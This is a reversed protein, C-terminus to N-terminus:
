FRQHTSTIQRGSHLVDGVVQAHRQHGYGLRQSAVAIDTFFRALFDDLARALQVVLRVPNRAAQDRPASVHHAEHDGIQHVREEGLHRRAHRALQPREAILDDYRVRILVRLGLLPLDLQQHRAAHVPQDDRRCLGVPALARGLRQTAAFNGIHQDIAHRRARLHVIHSRPVLFDSCEGGLVQDLLSAPADRVQAAFVGGVAHPPQAAIAIRELTMPKRKPLFVHDAAATLVASAILGHLLKQPQIRRGVTDETIVVGGRRSGDLRDQLRSKPHRLIYGDYARSVHM